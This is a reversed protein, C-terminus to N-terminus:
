RLDRAGEATWERVNVKKGPLPNLNETSKEPFFGRFSRRHLLRGGAWGKGELGTQSRIGSEQGRCARVLQSEEMDKSSNGTVYYM